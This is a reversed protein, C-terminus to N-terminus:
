QYIKNEEVRYKLSQLIDGIKMNSLTLDPALDYLPVLVFARELIRPHPLIMEDNCIDDDFMLLDLDIIRPGYRLDKSRIRGMKNEIEHLYNLLQRANINKTCELELVQNAFWAQNAYDQPETFYIPSKRINKLECHKSIELVANDLNQITNGLNSGLGIYIM